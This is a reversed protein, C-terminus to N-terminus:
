KLKAGGASSGAHIHRDFILHAVVPEAQWWFRNPSGNFYRAM